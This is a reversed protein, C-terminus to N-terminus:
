SIATLYKDMIAKLCVNLPIPSSPIHGLLQQSDYVGLAKSDYTNHKDHKVQLMQGINPKVKYAHYGKICAFISFESQTCSM